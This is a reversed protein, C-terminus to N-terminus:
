SHKFRKGVISILVSFIVAFLIFSPFIQLWTNHGCVFDFLRLGPLIRECSVWALIWSCIASLVLNGVGILTQM